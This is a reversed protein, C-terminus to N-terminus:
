NWDGIVSTWGPAGFGYTRDSGSTYSGNGNYDLYWAGNKYIGVFFQGYPASSGYAISFYSDSMDTIAPNSISTIRIRYDTGTALGAPMTWSTFYGDNATSSSIVQVMANAKLLEIKVQNGASGDTTWTIVPTTNCLWSEGGNPSTVVIPDTITFDADSMDTISPNDTGTIRVKYDTGTELGAPVTWSSFTGDNSTYSSITQVVLGAKLLEIKVASGPNGTYTWNITPTDGCTWHESGDPSNVVIRSTVPIARAQGSNENIMLSSEDVAEFSAGDIANLL